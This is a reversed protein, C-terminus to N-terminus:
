SVGSFDKCLPHFDADEPLLLNRSDLCGEFRIGFMETTEREHWVAGPFIKGISPQVAGNRPLSVRVLLRLSEEYHNFLYVCEFIEDKLKDVATVTEIFFGNRSLARALPQVQEKDLVLSCHLGSNPFETPQYEIGAKDLAKQLPNNMVMKFEGQFLRPM